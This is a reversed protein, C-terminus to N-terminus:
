GRRREPLADPSRGICARALRSGCNCERERCPSRLQGATPVTQVTAIFYEANVYSRGAWIGIHIEVGAKGRVYREAGVDVEELSQICHPLLGPADERHIGRVEFSGRHSM